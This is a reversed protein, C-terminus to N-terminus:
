FVEKSAEVLYGTRCLKHLIPHSNAGLANSAESAKFERLGFRLLLKSYAEASMDEVLLVDYKSINQAAAEYAKL